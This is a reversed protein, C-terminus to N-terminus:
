SSSPQPLEAGGVQDASENLIRLQVMAAFRSDPDDLDIGGVESARRLRYRFTNAHVSLAKSAANIDGFWELWSRLTDVLQSHHEADYAVLRAVPGTPRDGRAAALDSLEMMLAEVHVDSLQASRDGGRGRRACLVRVCRDVNMRASSLESVGQAVPSIGIVADGYRITRDLFENAIRSAREEPDRYDQNMPLLGYAVHGILATASHPQMAALHMAFADSLRQRDAEIRASPRVATADRHSEPIALALVIMAQNALGLRSLAERAGPGGELATSLLDARLRRQVDSGARIRLMHLATLKAADCLATTRDADLSERVAVWISGLVEDGARVAIAVRPLQDSTLPDQWIPTDSRYLDRFVGLSAQMQTFREPVHRGLVTEIRGQDAEDQRGSYALVRSNRDEITIPADVLATIANALAFLDGSPIGGLTEADVDAPAEDVLASRAMSALQVWSAGRTLSVVPVGSREAAQAVSQSTSVPARLVLAAAGQRGIAELLQTTAADGDVGVGLVLAGRALEPEDLPDHIVVGSIEIDPDAEGHVLELLISGLDDLLRRLSARPRANSM